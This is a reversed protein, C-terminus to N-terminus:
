LRIKFPVGKSYFSQGDSAGDPFVVNQFVSLSDNGFVEISSEDVFISLKVRKKKPTVRTEHYASFKDSFSIDGSKSRDFTSSLHLKGHLMYLVRPHLLNTSSAEPIEAPSSTCTQSYRSQPLWCHLIVARHSSVYRKLATLLPGADTSITM